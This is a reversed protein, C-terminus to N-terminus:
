SQIKRLNRRPRIVPLNQIPHSHGTTTRTTSRIIISQICTLTIILIMKQRPNLQNNNLSSSLNNLHRITEVWESGIKLRKFLNRRFLSLPMPLRPCTLSNVILSLTLRPRLKLASKQHLKSLRPRSLASSLTLLLNGTGLIRALCQPAHYLRHQTAM